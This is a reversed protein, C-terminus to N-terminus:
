GRKQLQGWEVVGCRAAWQEYMRKMRTTRASDKAALNNMETRDQPINYLEWDGPYRSVLKWDGDRVHLAFIDREPRPAPDTKLTVAQYSAGFLKEAVPQGAGGEAPPPVWAIFALLIVLLIGRM